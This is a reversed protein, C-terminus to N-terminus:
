GVFARADQFLHFRELSADQTLPAGGPFWARRRIRNQSVLVTAPVASLVAALRVGDSHRSCGLCDDPNNRYNGLHHECPGLKEEVARYEGRVGVRADPHHERHPHVRSFAHAGMSGDLDSGEPLQDTAPSITPIAAASVAAAPIAAAPIAAPCTTGATANATNDSLLRKGRNRREESKCTRYLIDLSRDRNDRVM